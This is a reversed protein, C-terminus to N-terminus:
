QMLLATVIAGIVAGAAAGAGILAASIRTRRSHAQKAPALWVESIPVTRTEGWGDTVTVLQSDAAYTLVTCTWPGWWPWQVLVREGPLFTAPRLEELAVVHESGRLFRVQCGEDSVSVVTAVYFRGDASKAFTLDGASPPAMPAPMRERLAREVAARGIGAEEAAQIIAERDAHSSETAAHIESARALVARVDDRALEM